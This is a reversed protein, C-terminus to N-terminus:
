AELPSPPPPELSQEAKLRAVEEDRQKPSLEPRAFAVREELSIADAAVLTALVQAAEKDDRPLAPARRITPPKDRQAYSRGFGGETTPRGDLIQAAHLLRAVGRDFFRGKGSSELLSHAMKLKMATGSLAQGDVDRGVQQPSVGAFTLTTDIMHDLWSVVAGAEFGYDIVQLPSTKEDDGGARSTRIYVDHGAPLRARGDPDSQVYGADILARKRGALRLNGQGVSSAENIALFREELGAYDSYGRTPDADITNPIFAVLPWEIGTTVETPRGKTEEFSDLKMESGLANRSGRYLRSRVMGPEYTELLRVRETSGTVWTTVFTAGRVFRGAFHPIVRARSVFEIIPVDLVDPSVVVRGWVEGESSAIVAGRHLEADLGNETEIRDLNEDDREAAASIEAPEGYLMNASARSIMRPVPSLMYPQRYEVSAEQRIRTTDSDRFAAFLEIRDWVRRQGAPPWANRGLLKNIEGIASM